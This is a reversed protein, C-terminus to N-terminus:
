RPLPDETNDRRTGKNERSPGTSGAATGASLALAGALSLRAQERTRHFSVHQSKSSITSIVGPPWHSTRVRGASLLRHSSHGTSRLSSGCSPAPGPGDDELGPGGQLGGAGRRLGTPPLREGELDLSLLRTPFPSQPFWPRLQQCLGFNLYFM